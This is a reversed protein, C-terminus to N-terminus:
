VEHFVRKLCSRLKDAEIEVEEISKTIDINMYLISSLINISELFNIKSYNYKKDSNLYPDRDPHYSKGEGLIKDWKWVCHARRMTIPLFPLDEKMLEKSLMTAVIPDKLRLHLTTAVEHSDISQILSVETPLDSLKKNFIEKRLRNERLIEDKKQLQVRLMAGTIESVRTSIGLIPNMDKLLESYTPNFNIAQDVCMQIRPILDKKTTTVLGGEGATLVKDRNFSFCGLDGWSGLPRGKYEAGCAQAVDEIIPINNEKGIEVIKDIECQLGDMHVPIIARTRDSIKSKLDQLDILLSENINAVVPIAGVNLVAGATAVFTYSPIIVEDGKGIGLAMLAVILANTGSSLVFSGESGLFETFEREFQDCESVGLEQGYRFLKGSKLVRSIAEIEDNNILHKNPNKKM